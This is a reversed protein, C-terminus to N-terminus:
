DLSDTTFLNINENGFVVTIPFNSAKKNVKTVKGIIVVEDGEKFQKM